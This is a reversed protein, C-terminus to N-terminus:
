FRNVGLLPFPLGESKVEVREEALEAISLMSGCLSEADIANLLPQEVSGLLWSHDFGM